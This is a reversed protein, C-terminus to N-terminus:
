TPCPLHPRNEAPRMWRWTCAIALRSSIGFALYFAEELANAISSVAGPALRYADLVELLAAPHIRSNRIRKRDILRAVVLATVPSQPELLGVETLRGVQSVLDQYSLSPLLAEWVLRSELWQAPIMSSSLRNEEILSVVEDESASKKALEYGRVQRLDSALIEPTALHGLEGEVAWQFLANHVATAAKPHSLRLLDRHSWGNHEMTELMRYALESGPQNLYWAAIASRLGRGWGRFNEAFAAFTCLQASTRAVQPLANLAAGITEADAFGPSAALALVFLAADTSAARGSLSIEV